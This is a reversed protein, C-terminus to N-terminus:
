SKVATVTTADTLVTATTKNDWGIEVDKSRSVTASGSAGVKAMGTASVSTTSLSITPNTISVTGSIAVTAGDGNDTTSGTAITTTNTLKIPVDVSTVENIVTSTQIQPQVGNITLIENVTDVNWGKLWADVSTDSTTSNTLTTLATTSIKSATTQTSSVTYVDATTLKATSVSGSAGSASAQVYTTKTTVTYVPQQTVQLSADSTIASTTQKTFTVGTVIESLKIQTDGIKEWAYTPEETTGGTIITVYEDYIDSADPNQQSSSKVLYFKKLTAANAPKTGTYETNSYTVVVGDPINAITPISNGNWAIVFEGASGILSRAVTDKVGYINGSPLQIQSIYGSLQTEPM